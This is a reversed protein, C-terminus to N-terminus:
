DVDLTVLVPAHDSGPDDRRARPNDGISPIETQVASDAAAPPPDVRTRVTAVRELLARSVLVHDILEGRGRYVRSFREDEPLLPALNWLRDGDGRDPRLMGLTGIESGGPGLLVQTTAADVTDNLDGMVVLARDRGQGDLAQNAHVRLAGAEAARRNLAYVAFRAREDEDRPSFRGGPYTLLKSKLHCTVLRIATGGVSSAVTVGLAGRGMRTLTAGADTVRGGALADPLDVVDERDTMPLRSVFAVRIGRGDPADSLESGWTGPLRGVLDALAEASGVEQLGVVDAGAATITAALADLKAEYAAAVTPGSADAAPRFLNEVNWTAVVLM